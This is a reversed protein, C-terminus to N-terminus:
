PWSGNVGILRRDQLQETDSLLDRPFDSTFSVGDPNADTWTINWWHEVVAAQVRGALAAAVVFKASTSRMTRYSFLLHYYTFSIAESNHPTFTVNLNLSSLSFADDELTPRDSGGEASSFLRVRM